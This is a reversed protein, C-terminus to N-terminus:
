VEEVKTFPFKHYLLATTTIDKEIWLRESPNMEAFGM